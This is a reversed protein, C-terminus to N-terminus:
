HDGQPRPTMRPLVTALPARSAEPPASHAARLYPGSPPAVIRQRSAPQHLGGHPGDERTTRVVAAKSQLSWHDASSGVVSEKRAVRTPPEEVSGADAHTLRCGSFIDRVAALAKAALLRPKHLRNPIRQMQRKAFRLPRTLYLLSLPLANIGPRTAKLYEPPPLLMARAIAARSRWGSADWIAKIRRHRPESRLGDLAALHQLPRAKAASRRLEDIVQRPIPANFTSALYHYTVYLPLAAGADRAIWMLATWNIAAGQSQRHQLLCLTDVIWSLGRRQPVISAHVPAQILLDADDILRVPVGAIKGKRARSWVGSLDGDYFPTRYLRDHLEVPLGSEHDFRNDSRPGHQKSPLFGAGQLADGAAPMDVSRVLLDIDHSHRVVPDAHITEAVTVGKGVIFDIGRQRLAALAEALLRRYRTSRLEERARAARFYPEIDRGVDVGHTTLNRYLLPLHRKIGVRDSALFAKPDPVDQRWQTWAKAGADGQLLAAQLLLTTSACPMMLRLTDALPPDSALIACQPTTL